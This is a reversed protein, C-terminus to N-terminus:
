SFFGYSASARSAETVFDQRKRLGHSDGTVAEDRSPLHETWPAM